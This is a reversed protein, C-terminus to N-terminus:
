RDIWEGEEDREGRERPEGVLVGCGICRGESGMDDHWGTGPNDPCRGAEVEMEVWELYGAEYLADNLAEYARQYISKRESVGGGRDARREAAYLDITRM